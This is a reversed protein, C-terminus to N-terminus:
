LMHKMRRKKTDLYSRNNTNEKGRIRETGVVNIGLKQLAEVKEPNNTLLIVSKIGLERIIWAAAKYTREDPGFGLLLNASVTDFGMEQMHYARVKNLLGIGRGEQSLYILMGKRRKGLYELSSALQDGCDCRLSGFAEGTLCSSHIRVPVREKGYVDGRILAAHENNGERFAIMRFTGFRTPLRAEEVARM